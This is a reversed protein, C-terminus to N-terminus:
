PLLGSGEVTMALLQATTTGTGVNSFQSTALIVVAGSVDIPVPQNVNSVAFSGVGFGNIGGIPGTFFNRSSGSSIAGVVTQYCQTLVRPTGASINTALSQGGDPMAALTTGDAKLKLLITPPASGTVLEWYGCTRLVTGQTLKASPLTCQVTDHPVDSGSASSSNNTGGGTASCLTAMPSGYGAFGTVSCQWDLTENVLSCQIHKLPGTIATMNGAVDNIRDSGTRAIVLNNANMHYFNYLGVTATAAAPLTCTTTGTPSIQHNSYAMDCTTTEVVPTLKISTFEPATSETPFDIAVATQGTIRGDEDTTVQCVNTANGCTGPTVSTSELEEPGIGGTPEGSIAEETMLTIQGKANVTIQCVNTADGCVGPTVATNALKASAISGDAVTFEIPVETCSDARGDIDFVVQPVNAADGCAETTVEKDELADTDVVGTGLVPNPYTGTLDGGAAGSPAGGPIGIDELDDLLSGNIRIGNIYNPVITLDQASVSAVLVLSLLLSWLKTM